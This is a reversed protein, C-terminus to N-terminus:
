TQLIPHQTKSETLAAETCHYADLAREQLFEEQETNQRSKREWQRIILQWRNRISNDSRNHFFKAIKNWKPGLEEYKQVLLQDDEYTWPQGNELDPNVYNKWRERCQRQNRNTGMLSAITPWSNTGYTNVLQLLKKDEEPTFKNKVKKPQVNPLSSIKKECNVAAPQINTYYYIPIPTPANVVTYFYPPIMAQNM